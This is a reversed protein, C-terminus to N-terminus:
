VNWVNKFHIPWWKNLIIVDFRLDYTHFKSKFAIFSKAALIIRHRQKTSILELQPNLKNRAKVEIFIIMKNKKAIIDIEGFKTKYRCHLLQYGKIRLYIIALKEAFLGYKYTSFLTSKLKV